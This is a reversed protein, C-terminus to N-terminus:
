WCVFWAGGWKPYEAGIGVSRLTCRTEGNLGAGLSSRVNRSVPRVWWAKIGRGFSAGALLEPLIRPQSCHQFCLDDQTSGVMRRNAIEEGLIGLYICLSRKALRVYESIV